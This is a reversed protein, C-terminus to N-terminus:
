AIEEWFAPYEAPSWVSVVGEPATCIYTNGDFLVKDGSYYYKGEVYESIDDTETEGVELARVRQELESLKAYVDISVKADAGERALVKLEDRQEDSLQGEAWLTDVKRLIVALDYSKTNIVNKIISYM